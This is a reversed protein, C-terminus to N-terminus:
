TKTQGKSLWRTHGKPRYNQHAMQYVVNNNNQCVLITQWKIIFKPTGKQYITMQQFLKKEKKNNRKLSSTLQHARKPLVLITHIEQSAEKTNRKLNTKKTFQKQKFKLSGGPIDKKGIM